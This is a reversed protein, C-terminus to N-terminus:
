RRTMKNKEGVRAEDAFWVEMADPAVGKERGIVEGIEELHM